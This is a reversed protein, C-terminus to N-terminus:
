TIECSKVSKCWVTCSLVAAAGYVLWFCTYPGEKAKKARKKKSSDEGDKAEDKKSEKQKRKPPTVHSVQKEKPTPTVGEPSDLLDKSASASLKKAFKAPMTHCRIAEPWCFNLESWWPWGCLSMGDLSCTLMFKGFTWIWHITWHLIFCM